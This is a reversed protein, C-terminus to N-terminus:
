GMYNTAESLKIQFYGNLVLDAMFLVGFNPSDTILYIYHMQDTDSATYPAKKGELKKERHAYYSM